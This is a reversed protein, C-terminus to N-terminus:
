HEPPLGPWVLDLSIGPSDSNPDPVGGDDEQNDGISWLRFAGEGDNAYRMPLGDYPDLPVAPLFAPVLQDLREPLSARSRRYRELAIALRAQRVRAEVMLLRSESRSFNITMMTAFFYRLNFGTKAHDFDIPQIGDPRWQGAHDIRQGLVDYNRNLLLQNDRILGTSCSLATVLKAGPAPDFGWAQLENARAAVSKGALTDLAANHCAREMEIAKPYAAAIQLGALERELGILQADEWRGSVLGEWVPQVQLYTMAAGLMCPVLAPDTKLAEALRFAGHLEAFAEASKHVRLLAVARMAHCQAATRFDALPIKESIPMPWYRIRFETRPRAEAALVAPWDAGMQRDFVRFFLAVADPELKEGSAPKEESLKARVKEFDPRRSDSLSPLLDFPLWDHKLKPPELPDGKKDVRVPAFPPAAALNESAPIAPHLEPLHLNIGRAAADKRYAQWEREANWSFALFVGPITLLLFLPAFVPLNYLLRGFFNRQRSATM